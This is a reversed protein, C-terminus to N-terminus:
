GFADAHAYRRTRASFVRRPPGQASAAAAVPHFALYEGDKFALMLVDSNAFFPPLDESSPQVIVEYGDKKYRDALEELPDPKSM